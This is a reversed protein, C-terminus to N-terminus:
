VHSLIQLLFPLQTFGHNSGQKHQEQHFRLMQQELEGDRSENPRNTLIATFSLRSSNPSSRHLMFSESKPIKYKAVQNSPIPDEVARVVYNDNLLYRTFHLNTRGM